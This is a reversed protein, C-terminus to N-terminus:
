GTFGENHRNLLTEVAQKDQEIQGDIELHIARLVACNAQWGLWGAMRQQYKEAHTKGNYISLENQITETEKNTNMKM